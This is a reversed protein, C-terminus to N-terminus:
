IYSISSKKVDNNITKLLLMNRGYSKSRCILGKKSRFLFVEVSVYFFAYEIVSFSCPVCLPDENQLARAFFQLNHPRHNGFNYNQPQSMVLIALSNNAVIRFKSGTFYTILFRRNRFFTLLFLFHNLIVLDM